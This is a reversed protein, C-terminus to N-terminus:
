CGQARVANSTGVASRLGGPKDDAIILTLPGTYTPAMRLAGYRRDWEGSRLDSALRSLGQETTDADLFQWASQGDRVAPELLAEPRGYFAEVFGDSCDLPIPVPQVVNTGGLIRCLTGVAPFRRRERELRTPLYDSLWFDSLMTADITMVVVPGRAVRRMERLGQELAAWQHVTFIAMAADVTDDDLPLAEAGADIAPVAGLVRRRERMAASPEVALVYRDAPEYSGAGAGVNLVTAAEGLAALVQVAIRPDARRIAEYGAGTHEYDTDGAPANRTAM